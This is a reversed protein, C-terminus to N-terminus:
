RQTDFIDTSVELGLIADGQHHSFYYCLSLSFTSVHNRFGIRCQKPTIVIRDKEVLSVSNRLYRNAAFVNPQVVKQHM